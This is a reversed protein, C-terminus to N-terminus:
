IHQVCDQNPSTRTPKASFKPTEMPMASLVTCPPHAMSVEPSLVTEVVDVKSGTSCQQRGRKTQQRRHGHSVCSLPGSITGKQMVPKSLANALAVKWLRWRFFTKVQRQGEGGKEAPFGSKAARRDFRKDPFVAKSTSRGSYTGHGSQAWRSEREGRNREREVQGRSQQLTKRGSRPRRSDEKGM